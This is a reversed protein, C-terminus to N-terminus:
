IYMYHIHLNHVYTPPCFLALKNEKEFMFHAAEPLIYVFTSYQVYVYMYIYMNM